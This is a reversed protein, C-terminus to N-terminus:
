ITIDINVDNNSQDKDTNPNAVVDVVETITPTINDNDKDNVQLVDSRSNSDDTRSASDPHAESEIFAVNMEVDFSPIVM